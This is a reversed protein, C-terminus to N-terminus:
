EPGRYGCSGVVTIRVGVTVRIRIPRRVRIPINGRGSITIAVGGILSCQEELHIKGRPMWPILPRLRPLNAGSSPLPNLGNYLVSASEAASSSITERSARGVALVVTPNTTRVRKRWRHTWRVETNRPQSTGIEHRPVRGHDLGQSQFKQATPGLGSTLMMLVGTRRYLRYM